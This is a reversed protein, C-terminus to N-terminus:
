LNNVLKRNLISALVLKARKVFEAESENELPEGVNDSLETLVEDSTALKSVTYSFKDRKSRSFDVILSTALVSAVSLSIDRKVSDLPICKTNVKLNNIFDKLDGMHQRKKRSRDTFNDLFRKLGKLLLTSLVSRQQIQYAQGFILLWAILKLLWNFM